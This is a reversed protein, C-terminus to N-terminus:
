LRIKSVNRYFSPDKKHQFVPMQGRVKDLDELNLTVQGSLVGDGGGGEEDLSPLVKLLRGWPDIVASQGWTSRQQGGSSQQHGGQAPAVVFCQTEIARARLLTLWHARGTKPLFASPVLLVQAGNERLSQYLEPFRLDYCISVGWQVEAFSVVAPATGPAFSETERVPPEGAVDVDFLHTKSYVNHARGSPLIWWFSNTPLGGKADETRVGGLALAKQHKKCWAKLESLLPDNEGQLAFAIPGKELRQYLCNEPLFIASTKATEFPKLALLIKQLNDEPVDSSNLQLWGVSVSSQLTMEPTLNGNLDSGKRGSSM